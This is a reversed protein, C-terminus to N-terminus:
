FKFKGPSVGFHKKFATSFHQVHEYGVIYAINSINQGGDLLLSLAYEMRKTRIYEFVSKNHLAKFGTKVKFTNLGSTRALYDLTVDELYHQDLYIKLEQIKKIDADKLALNYYTHESARIEMFQLLLLQSMLGQIYLIRMSDLYPTDRIKQLISFMEPTLKYTDKSFSFPQKKEMKNIIEEMWRDEDQLLDVFIKKNIGIAISDIYQPGLVEHENDNPGYVFSCSKSRIQFHQGIGEYNSNIKGDILFTLVADDKRQFPSTDANEYLVANESTVTKNSAIKINPLKIIDSNYITDFRQNGNLM